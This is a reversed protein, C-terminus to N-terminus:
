HLLIQGKNLQMHGKSFVNIGSLFTQEVVGSLEKGIYPTIKHKHLISKEEVIFKEEPNWVVLDADFGKAIQGKKKQM